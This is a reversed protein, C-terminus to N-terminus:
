FLQQKLGQEKETLMEHLAARAKAQGKVAAKLSNKYMYEGSEVMDYLFAEAKQYCVLASKLDKETGIGYLYMKGLRLYVPGASIPAQEDTMQTMCRLYMNYAQYDSKPLYYGNLYMDGLKYLSTLNGCLAGYAFYRYAKEHDKKGTRGYYWCYGLNEHAILNGKHAAMEYYHVAKQFSQECGRKGDYYMAGLDNMAYDNDEAIEAEYLEIMFDILYPPFETPKDCDMLGTAIEYPSNNVEDVSIMEALYSHVEPLQDADVLAFISQIENILNDKSIM